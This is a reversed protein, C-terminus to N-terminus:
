TISDPTIVICPSPLDSSFSGFTRAAYRPSHDRWRARGGAECRPGERPGKKRPRSVTPRRDVASGGRRTDPVAAAPDRSQVPMDSVMGTGKVVDVVDVVNVVNVVNVLSNEDGHMEAADRGNSGLEEVAMRILTAARIRVGPRSQKAAEVETLMDDGQQIETSHESEAM